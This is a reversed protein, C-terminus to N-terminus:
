ACGAPKSRRAQTEVSRYASADPADRGDGIRLMRTRMHFQLDGLGRRGPQIHRHAVKRFVGFGRKFACTVIDGVTVVSERTEDVSDVFAGIMSDLTISAAGKSSIM